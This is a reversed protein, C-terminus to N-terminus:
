LQELESVVNAMSPRIAATNHWCTMLLQWLGESLAACGQPRAPTLKRVVVDHIVSADRKRDAFPYKGTLLELIAMAFSYTDTEFTPSSVAGDILEPALWRASGAATLTVSASKETVEEILKSMGFDCICAEGQLEEEASLCELFMLLSVSTILFLSTRRGKIKAIM